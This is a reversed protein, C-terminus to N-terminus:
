FIILVLVNKKASIYCLRLYIWSSDFVSRDNIWQLNNKVEHKERRLFDEVGLADALDTIIKQVKVAWYDM